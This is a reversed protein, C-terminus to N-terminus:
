KKIVQTVRGFKNILTAIHNSGEELVTQDRPPPYGRVIGASPVRRRATSHLLTGEALIAEM